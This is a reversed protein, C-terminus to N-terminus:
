RRLRAPSGEAGRRLGGTQEDGRRCQTPRQPHVVRVGGRDATRIGFAAYLDVGDDAQRLAGRHRAGPRRRAIRTDRQDAVHDAGAHRDRGIPRADGDGDDRGARHHLRARHCRCSQGVRRLVADGVAALGADGGVADARGARAIVAHRGDLRRRRGVAYHHRHPTGEAAPLDAACRRDGGGRRPRGGRDRRLARVGRSVGHLLGVAVGYALGLRALRCRFPRDQDRHDAQRGAAGERTRRHVRPRQAGSRVFLM